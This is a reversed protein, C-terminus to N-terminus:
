AERLQREARLLREKRGRGWRYDGASGDGRIVRHCPILLATRNQACASGVARAAGPSGVARAVEEYSRVQGYPISQLFSWVRTQFATGRVDLPLDMRHSEGCLHDKLARIWDSLRGENARPMRTLTAEPFEDELERVLAPISGLGVYCVGRDTAALLAPGLPTPATAYSIQLGKGGKRYQAPTMGLRSDVREYVRSSSNFGSSFTSDLISEGARLGSKFAKLRCAEVYQRPTIGIIAKFRRQLHFPSKGARRALERLPLPEDAHREIYACLEHVAKTTRDHLSTDGPRCRLCPRLGAREAETTSAYFRVNKRLPRRSKCSPRCYVGTTVVGYFFRGDHAPDRSVLANWREVDSMAKEQVSSV